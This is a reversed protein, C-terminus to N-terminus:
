NIKLLRTPHSLKFDIEVPSEFIDIDERNGQYGKIYPKVRADFQVTNGHVLHLAAFGKTLNFWLHDTVIKNHCDKIDKLFLTPKPYGFSNKTGERVFIGTFTARINEIRELKKRM